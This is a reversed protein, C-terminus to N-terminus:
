DSLVGLARVHERFAHVRANRAAHIFVIERGSAAAANLMSLAPTIGVGATLLVLPRPTDVLTFSGCPALVKLM